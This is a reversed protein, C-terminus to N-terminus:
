RFSGRELTGNRAGFKTQFHAFTSCWRISQTMRKNPLWACNLRFDASKKPSERDSIFNRSHKTLTKGFM